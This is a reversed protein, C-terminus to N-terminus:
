YEEKQAPTRTDKTKPLNGINKKSRAIWDDDSEYFLDDFSAM